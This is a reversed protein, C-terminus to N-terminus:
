AIQEGGDDAHGYWVLQKTQIDHVITLKLKLIERIRQNTIEGQEEQLEEGTTEKIQLVESGYYLPCM